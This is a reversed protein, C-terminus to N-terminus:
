GAQGSVQGMGLRHSCVREVPADHGEARPVDQRLAERVALVDVGLTELRAPGLQMMEALVLRQRRRQLARAIGRRVPSLIQSVIGM